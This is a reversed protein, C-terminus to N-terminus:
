LGEDSEGGGLGQLVPGPGVVAHDDGGVAGVGGERQALGVGDVRSEDL